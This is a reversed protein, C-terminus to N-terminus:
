HNGCLVKNIDAANLTSQNLLEAARSVICIGFEEGLRCALANSHRTAKRTTKLLMEVAKVTLLGRTAIKKQIKKTKKTKSTTYLGDTTKLDNDPVEGTANLFFTTPNIWTYVSLLHRVAVIMDAPAITKRGNERAGEAAVAAIQHVFAESVERLRAVGNSTLTPPTDDAFRSSINKKFAAAAAAM